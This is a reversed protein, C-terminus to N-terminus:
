KKFLDQIFGISKSLLRNVDEIPLIKESVEFPGWQNSQFFYPIEITIPIIRGKAKM